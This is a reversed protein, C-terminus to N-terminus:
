NITHIEVYPMGIVGPFIQDLDGSHYEFERTCLYILEQLGEMVDMMVKKDDIPPLDRWFNDTMGHRACTNSYENWIKPECILAYRDLDVIRYGRSFIRYHTDSKFIACDEGRVLIFGGNVYQSVIKINRVHEALTRYIEIWKKDM